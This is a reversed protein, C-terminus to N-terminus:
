EAADMGAHKLSQKVLLACNKQFFEVPLLGAKAHVEVGLQGAIEAAGKGGEADAIIRAHYAETQAIADAFYAAVEAAGTIAANHSLCLTEAGLGALRRMSDLYAAYDTFYNPWCCNEGPMYYGTADSVILIGADPEHFSLSCDSHGPTALVNFSLEGVAVTDGEGIVRDIAIRNEALPEPKHAEEISGAALLSATLARDIKGFFAVAKEVQLTGAAVQSAAVTAGNFFQRLMPVAMVHDPHGHTVIIQGVTETAVDLDEFQQALVPGMAGVGGEFIAAEGASCVLYLPYETTGLMTVAPTIEVPPKAILM